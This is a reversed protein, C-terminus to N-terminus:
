LLLHTTLSTKRDKSIYHKNWQEFFIARFLHSSFSWLSAKTSAVVSDSLGQLYLRLRPKQNITASDKINL